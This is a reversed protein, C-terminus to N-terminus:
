FRVGGQISLHVIRADDITATDAIFRLQMRSFALATGVGYALTTDEREIGSSEWSGAAGGARAFISWRSWLPLSAIAMVTAYSSEVTVYNDEPSGADVYSTEIGFYRNFDYVAFVSWATDNADFGHDFDLNAIGAGAGVTFRAEGEAASVSFSALAIVVASVFTRLM